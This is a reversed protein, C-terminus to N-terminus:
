QRSNYTAQQKQLNPGNYIPYQPNIGNYVGISGSISFTRDDNVYMLGAEFKSYMTFSNSSYRTLGTNMKNIDANIFSRNFNIYAPAASIGAFAYLNNNLRRNLQLGIPASFVSANGGNFFGYSASIGGYKTLTWKKHVNNSDNIFYYNNLANRQTFNIDRLPLQSQARASIFSIMFLILVIIRM